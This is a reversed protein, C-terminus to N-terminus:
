PLALILFSVKQFEIVVSQKKINFDGDNNKANAILSKIGVKVGQSNTPVKIDMQEQSLFIWINENGGQDHSIENPNQSNISTMTLHQNKVQDYYNKCESILMQANNVAREAMTCRREENKASLLHREAEIGENLLNEISGLCDEIKVFLVEVLGMKFAIDTCRQTLNVFNHINHIQVSM